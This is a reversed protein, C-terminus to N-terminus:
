ASSEGAGPRPTWSVRLAKRGQMAAWTSTALVAVGNCPRPNDEGFSPLADADIRLVRRVGPVARARSDDVSAVRAGLTPSREVVAFLMGPVRQDIGFLPEGRIIAPADVSAVRKGILRYDAPSKLPPDAPVPLLAAASALAGYGASRHTPHHFVFGAEVVCEAPSVSWEAAAAALLMARATAGARRLPEWGQRIASSGGSYQPGYKEGAYGAQVIRVTGWDADLEEAVLMALATRTGQGMDPRAATITVAGDPDIRIFANPEWAVPDGARARLGRPSAISVLMGGAALASVRLFDRRGIADAAKM